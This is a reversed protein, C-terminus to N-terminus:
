KKASKWIFITIGFTLVGILFYALGFPIGFIQITDEVYLNTYGVLIATIFFFMITPCILTKFTKLNSRKKKKQRM